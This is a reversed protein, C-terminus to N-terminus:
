EGGVRNDFRGCCLTLRTGELLREREVVRTKAESIAYSM